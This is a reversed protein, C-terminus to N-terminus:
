DDLGRKKLVSRILPPSPAQYVPAAGSWPIKERNRILILEPENGNRFTISEAKKKNSIRISKAREGHRVFLSKINEIM